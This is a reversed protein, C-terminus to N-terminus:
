CIFLFQNELSMQAIELQIVLPKSVSFYHTSGNSTQVSPIDELCKKEKLDATELNKRECVEKKPM